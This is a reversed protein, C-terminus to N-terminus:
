IRISSVSLVRKKVDIFIYFMFVYASIVSSYAVCFFLNSFHTEMPCRVRFFYLFCVLKMKFNINGYKGTLTIYCKNGMVM